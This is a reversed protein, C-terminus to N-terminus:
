IIHIEINAIQNVIGMKGPLRNKHTPLNIGDNPNDPKNGDRNSERMQKKDVDFLFFEITFQHIAVEDTSQTQNNQINKEFGTKGRIPLFNELRNEVLIRM